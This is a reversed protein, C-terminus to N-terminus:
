QETPKFNRRAEALQNEYKNEVGAGSTRKNWSAIYGPVLNSFNRIPSGNYFWDTASHTNFFKEAMERSGGKSLFVEQVKELTPITPKRYLNSKSLDHAGISERKRKKEKSEKEKNANGDCHTRLANANDWRKKASETAKISKDNRLQIRKLVSDSWFFTDDTKFLDFDNIVSLLTECDVRLAFAYGDCESRMLRGGQEYLMEVLDWFIGKGTQGLKMLLKQMKPDNRAGYDHSFYERM